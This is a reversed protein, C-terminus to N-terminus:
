FIAMAAVAARPRSVCIRLVNKRGKINFTFNRQRVTPTVSPRGFGTSREKQPVGAQSTM